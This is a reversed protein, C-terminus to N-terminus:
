DTSLGWMRADFNGFCFCGWFRHLPLAFLL